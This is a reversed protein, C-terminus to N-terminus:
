LHEADRHAIVPQKCVARKLGATDKLEHQGQEAHERRLVPRQPPDAMVPMMVTIGIRFVVRM